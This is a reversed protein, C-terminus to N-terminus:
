FPVDDEPQASAVPKPDEPPTPPQGEKLRGYEFSRMAQEILWKPAHPPFEWPRGPICDDFAFYVSKNEQRRKEMGQPLASIGTINAFIKGANSGKGPTHQISILANAGIIKQLDFGKLEEETFKRARWNELDARLNAKASLSLTPQYSITRPGDHMVGKENKDPYQARILPLEFLIAVLHRDAFNPNSNPHTGLDFVGFCIGQHTGAPVPAIDAGGNNKALLPM